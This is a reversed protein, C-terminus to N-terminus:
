PQRWVECHPLRPISVVGRPARLCQECSAIAELQIEPEPCLSFHIGLSWSPDYNDSYRGPWRSSVATDNPDVAGHGICLLTFQSPLAKVTLSKARRHSSCGQVVAGRCAWDLVAKRCVDDAHTM